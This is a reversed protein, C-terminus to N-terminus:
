PRDSRLWVHELGFSGPPWPAPGEWGAVGPGIGFFDPLHLLPIVTHDDFFLRELKWAAEAAADAGSAREPSLPHPFGFDFLLQALADEPDEVPVDVRVLRADAGSGRTAAPVLTVALGAERADVLIRGAVAQLLPDANDAELRWSRLAPPLTAALSRAEARNERAGLLHSYGGLWQPLIAGTPQARRQLLTSLASRDLTLSFARRADAYEAGWRSQGVVVAVLELPLTSVSRLGRQELRRLDQPLVSVIDARGLELDALQDAPRRGMEIRLVDAFPRGGWYPEHAKLAASRGPEWRDIQFPGTAVLRSGSAIAIASRPSSLDWLLNPIPNQAEVRVATATATVTCTTYRQQLVTAVVAPTLPRGDHMRVSPRIRFEWWRNRADKQWSTALLPQIRWREDIRVLTESVLSALRSQAAPIAYEPQWDWPALSTVSAQMEIRLTGGYRPRAAVTLTWAVALASVLAPFAPSFRKM